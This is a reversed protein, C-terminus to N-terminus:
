DPISRASLNSDMVQVLHPLPRPALTKSPKLLFTCKHILITGSKLASSRTAAGTNSYNLKWNSLLALTRLDGIMLRGPSRVAGGGFAPASM